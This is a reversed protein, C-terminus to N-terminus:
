VKKGLYEFWKKTSKQISEKDWLPADKFDDIYRKMVGVGEEFGVKPQWKL